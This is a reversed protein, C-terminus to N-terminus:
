VWRCGKPRLGSIYSHSQSGLILHYSGQSWNAKHPPGVFYVSCHKNRRCRLYVKIHDSMDPEFSMNQRGQYTTKIICTKIIKLHLVLLKYMLLLIYLVTHHLMLELPSGQLPLCIDILCASPVHKRVLGRSISLHPWLQIHNPLINHCYVCEKSIQSRDNLKQTEIYIYTLKIKDQKFFRNTEM